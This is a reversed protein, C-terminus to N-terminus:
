GEFFYNKRVSIEIFSAGLTEKQEVGYCKHFEGNLDNGFSQIQFENGDCCGIAKMFKWCNTLQEPMSSSMPIFKIRPIALLM